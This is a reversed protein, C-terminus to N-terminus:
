VAGYGNACREYMYRSIGGAAESTL